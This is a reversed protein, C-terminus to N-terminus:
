NSAAEPGPVFLCKDRLFFGGTSSAYAITLEGTARDFEYRGGRISDRWEISRATIDAPFSDATRKSPDIAVNWTVGSFPNTCRLTAPEGGGPDSASPPQLALVAVAAVALGVSVSTVLSPMKPSMYAFRDFSSKDSM